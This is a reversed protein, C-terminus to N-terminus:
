GIILLRFSGTANNAHNITVQGDTQNSWWHAGVNSANADLAMFGLWSEATIRADNIVTTTGSGSLEYDDRANLKGDVLNRIVRAAERPESSGDENVSPYYHEIAM